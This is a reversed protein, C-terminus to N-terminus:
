DADPEFDDRHVIRFRFTPRQDDELEDRAEGHERSGAVTVRLMGSVLLKEVRAVHEVGDIEVVGLMGKKLGRGM